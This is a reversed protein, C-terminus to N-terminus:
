DTFPLGVADFDEESHIWGEEGNVRIKLWKDDEHPLFALQQANSQWDVHVEAELFEIKNGPEVIVRKPKGNDETTSYLRVFTQERVSLPDIRVEYACRELQSPGHLCRRAPELNFSIWNIRVPYVFTFNGTRVLFKLVKAGGLYPDAGTEVMTYVMPALLKLKGEHLGFIYTWGFDDPESPQTDGGVLVGSGNDVSFASASESDTEGFTDEYVSPIGTLEQGRYDVNGNPERLEWSQVSEDDNNKRRPGPHELQIMHAIFHFTQGNLLLPTDVEHHTIQEPPQDVVAVPAVVPAERQIGPASPPIKVVVQIPASETKVIAQSAPQQQNRNCGLALAAIVVIM